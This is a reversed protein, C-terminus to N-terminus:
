RVSAVTLSQGPELEHVRTDPATGAAYGTFRAGPEAFLHPRVRALGVPWFTGFHIPVAHRPASRRVAEAAGSPDLHGVGLTPGWGGVPILALDLPGLDSMEDFLGTDGAFWTNAAGHVTYGIAHARHRSWPGRGGHHNAPVARVRLAGVATEDGPVLEVYRGGPDPGLGRRLFGGAGAPVVITVQPPLRRLSALDLHDAHLHSILVADPAGPLRPTPGRRRQLHAVRNGLVPDTLLRVGSDEVWVTSHGWWTVQVITM